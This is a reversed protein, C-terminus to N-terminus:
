TAAKIRPNEAQTMPLRARMAAARNEARVKLSIGKSISRATLFSVKSPANKSAIMMDDGYLTGISSFALSDV